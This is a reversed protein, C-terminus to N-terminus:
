YHNISEISERWTSQSGGMTWVCAHSELNATLMFPRGAASQLGTRPIGWREAQSLELVGVLRFQILPSFFAPITVLATWNNCGTCSTHQLCPPWYVCFFTSACFRIRCVTHTDNSLILGADCLTLVNNPSNGTALISVSSPSHQSM